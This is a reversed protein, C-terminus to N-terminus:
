WAPERIESRASVTRGVAAQPRGDLRGKRHGGVIRYSQRNVHALGGVVTTRGSLRRDTRRQDSDGLDARPKAPRQDEGRRQGFPQGGDDFAIGLEELDACVAARFSAANEGIGGTFVIADAGGLEVLYAGLYHRTSAAFVDLALKARANGAAAAAELDRLDGSIGSLGLLGSKNALISLVEALPKGTHKMVIPLAFPDFDGVRNNQPLGSQRQLGHQHGRKPRRSHRM